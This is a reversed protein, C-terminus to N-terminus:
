PKLGFRQIMVYSEDSRDIDPPLSGGIIRTNVAHVDIFIYFCPHGWNAHPTLDVFIMTGEFPMITVQRGIKVDEGQRLIKKYWYIISSSIEEPGLCNNITEIIQSNSLEM